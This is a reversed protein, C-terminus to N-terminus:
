RQVEGSLVLRDRPALNCADVGARSLERVDDSNLVSYRDLFSVHQDSFRM